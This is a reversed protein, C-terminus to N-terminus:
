GFLAYQFHTVPSINVDLSPNTNLISHLTFTKIVYSISQLINRRMLEYRITCNTDVVLSRGQLYRIFVRSFHLLNNLDLYIWIFSKNLDFITVNWNEYLSVLKGESDRHKASTNLITDHRKGLHDLNSNKNTIKWHVHPGKTCFVLIM